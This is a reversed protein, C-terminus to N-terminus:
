QEFVNPVCLGAALLGGHEIPEFGFAIDGFVPLNGIDEGLSHGDQNLDGFLGDRGFSGSQGGFQGDGPPHQDQHREIFFYGDRLLDTALVFPVPKAHNQFPHTRLTESEDGPGIRHALRSFFELGIEVGQDLFPFRHVGMQLFFLGFGPHKGLLVAHAADKAIQEIIRESRDHHVVFREKQLDDRGEIGDSWAPVLDDLHVRVLHRHKFLVTNVALDFGREPAAHRHGFAGIQHDFVGFGQVHDVHVASVAEIGLFVLLVIRQFDIQHCGLLDGTLQTQAIHATDDHHIEDVHDLALM